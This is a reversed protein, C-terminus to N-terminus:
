RAELKQVISAVALTSPRAAARPPTWGLRFTHLTWRTPLGPDGPILAKPKPQPTPVEAPVESMQPGLFDSLLM